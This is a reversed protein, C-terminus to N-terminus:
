PRRSAALSDLAWRDRPGLLVLLAAALLGLDRWLLSLGLAEGGDTEFCGCSIDLDRALAAGIAIMFAVLLILLLLAAGRRAAGVLVAAGAVLEAWPVLLAFPHLAATPLLRYYSVARAFGAPDAIKDLSAYVFVAGLVLRCALVLTRLLHARDTM